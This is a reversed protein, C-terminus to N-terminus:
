GGSPACNAAHSAGNDSISAFASVKQELKKGGCSPCKLEAIDSRKMILSEFDIGCELCSYEYLPM